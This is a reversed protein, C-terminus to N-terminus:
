WAEGGPLGFIWGEKPSLTSDSPVSFSDPLRALSYIAAASVLADIADVSKPATGSPVGFFDFVDRAIGEHDGAKFQRKTPRTRGAMRYFVAPYIEAVIVQANEIPEFPWVAIETSRSQALAHLVRMGSFSGFGVQPGAMRYVSKPRLGSRKALTETQRLQGGNFLPGEYQKERTWLKIFPRFPSSQALWIPGAYFYPEAKCYEDVLAWLDRVGSLGELCTPLNEPREGWPVSFAFDLGVFTRRDVFSRILDFVQRRSWHVGVNPALLQLENTDPSFVAVRISDHCQGEAGSWDIGVYRDFNLASM